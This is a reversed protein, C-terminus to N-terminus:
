QSEVLGGLDTEVKTERVRVATCDMDIDNVTDNETQPYGSWGARGEKGVRREESRVERLAGPDVDGDVDGGAAVHRHCDSPGGPYIPLACTQVGTVTAGRM